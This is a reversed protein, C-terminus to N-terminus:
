KSLEKTKLQSCIGECNDECKVDNLGLAHTFGAVIDWADNCGVFVGEM